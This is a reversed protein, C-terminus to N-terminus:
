EAVDIEIPNSRADGTWLDQADGQRVTRKAPADGTRLYRVQLRHRGPSLPQQPPIMLTIRNMGHPPITIAGAQGPISVELAVAARGGEQPAPALGAGVPIICTRGGALTTMDASRMFRVSCMQAIFELVEGASIEPCNGLVRRGELHEAGVIIGLHTAIGPSELLEAVPRGQAAVSATGDLAALWAEKGRAGGRLTGDPAFQGYCDPNLLDILMYEHTLALGETSDLTIPQDSNNRLDLLLRIGDANVRTRSPDGAAAQLVLQLGRDPKAAPPPPDIIAVAMPESRVEGLWAAAWDAKTKANSYEVTCRYLGPQPFNETGTTLKLEGETSSVGELPIWGGSNDLGALAASVDAIRGDVAKFVWLASRGTTFQANSDSCLRGLCEALTADPALDLTADTLLEADALISIACRTNLLDLLERLTVKGLPLGAEAVTKALKRPLEPDLTQESLIGYTAPQIRVQFDGAANIARHDSSIGKLAFKLRLNEGLTCAPQQSALALQLGAVPDGERPPTTSLVHVVASDSAVDAWVMSNDPAGPLDCVVAFAVAISYTGPGAISRTAPLKDPATLDLRISHAGGPKLAILEADPIEATDQALEDGRVSTLMVQSLKNQGRRAATDESGIFISRSVNVPPTGPPKTNTLDVTVYVPEGVAFVENEPRVRAKLGRVLEEAAQQIRAASPPDTWATLMRADVKRPRSPPSSASAISQEGAAVTASGSENHFRVVGEVVTLSTQVDAPDFAVSFKTGVVEATGAPTRVAFSGEAAAAYTFIEGRTLDIIGRFGPAEEAIAALSDRNIVLEDGTNLRVFVVRDSSTRVSDGADLSDGVSAARTSDGAAVEVGGAIDRGETNMIRTISGVHSPRAVVFAVVISAAVAAIAYHLTRRRRGAQPQQISHMVRDAFGAPCVRPMDFASTVDDGVAKMRRLFRACDECEFVHREVQAAEQEPLEGDIYESIRQEWEPCPM